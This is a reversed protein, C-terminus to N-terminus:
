DISHHHTRADQQRQGKFSWSEWGKYLHLKRMHKRNWRADIDLWRGRTDSTCLAMTPTGPLDFPQAVQRRLLFPTLRIRMSHRTLLDYQGELLTVELLRYTALALLGLQRTCSPSAISDEDIGSLGLAHHLVAWTKGIHGLLAYGHIRGQRSRRVLLLIKAHEPVQALWWGVGCLATYEACVCCVVPGSHSPVNVTVTRSHSCRQKRM